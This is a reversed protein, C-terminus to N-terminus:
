ANTKDLGFQRRARERGAELGSLKSTPKPGGGLRGPKPASSPTQPSDGATQFEPWDALETEILEKLADTDVAGDSDIDVDDLDLLKVFRTAKEPRVGAEAAVSVAEAAVLRRNAQAVLAEHKQQEERRAATAAERRAEEIKRDQDSMAAERLKASDQEAKALKDEAAKRAADAERRAKREASLAKKGADGLEPKQEDESTSDDETGSAGSQSEPDTSM